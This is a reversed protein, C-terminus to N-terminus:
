DAKISDVKLIDGVMSIGMQQDSLRGKVVVDKDALASPIKGELQYSEGKKTRLVWVDGGLFEQSLRGKVKM